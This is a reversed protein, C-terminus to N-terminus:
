GIRDEFTSIRDAVENVIAALAVGTAPTTANRQIDAAVRRIFAVIATREKLAATEEVHDLGDAAIAEALAAAGMTHGGDVRRITAAIHEVLDVNVINEKKTTLTFSVTSPM